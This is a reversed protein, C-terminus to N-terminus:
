RAAVVALVGAVIVGGPWGHWRPRVGWRRRWRRPSRGRRRGLAEICHHSSGAGGGDGVEYHTRPMRRVRRDATGEQTHFCDTRPSCQSKSTSVCIYRRIRWLLLLAAPQSVGQRCVAGVGRKEVHSRRPDLPRLVMTIIM